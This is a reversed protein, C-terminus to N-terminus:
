RDEERVRDQPGDAWWGDVRSRHSSSEFEVKVGNGNEPEVKVDFGPNPNAWNVTVGSPSFKLSASGGVLTYTRTVSSAPASATTTTTSPVTAVSSTPTRDEARVTTTPSSPRVTTSPAAAQTPVSSPSPTPVSSAPMSSPSAAESKGAAKIEGASLPAPRQETVQDTVIAVGQWAVALAVAAAVFWAAVFALIKSM